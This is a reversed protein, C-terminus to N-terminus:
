NLQEQMRNSIQSTQFDQNTSDITGQFQPLNKTNGGAGMQQIGRITSTGQMGLSTANTM